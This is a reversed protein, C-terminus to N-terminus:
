TLAGARVHSFCTCQHSLGQNLVQPLWLAEDLKGVNRALQRGLRKIIALAEPHWGGLTDVAMPLFTIGEGACREEYKRLKLNHAHEVASSGDESAASM